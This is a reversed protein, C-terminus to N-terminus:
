RCPWRETFTHLVGLFEIDTLREPNKETWNVFFQLIAEVSIDPAGCVGILSGDSNTAGAFGMAKLADLVGLIYGTCYGKNFGTGEKCDTYLQQVTAETSSQAESRSPLVSLLLVLVCCACRMGVTRMTPWCRCEVALSRASRCSSATLCCREAFQRVKREPMDHRLLNVVGRRRACM